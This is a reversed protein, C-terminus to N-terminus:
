PAPCAGGVHRFVRYHFRAEIGHFEAVQQFSGSDRIMGLGIPRRRENIRPYAYFLYLSRESDVAERCLAEIELPTSIPRIEPDYIAPMGGGLGYGARLPPASGSAPVAALFEVVDRMPAYPNRLLIRTQPLVLAQYAALLLVATLVTAARGAVRELPRLGLDVAIALWALVGPLLFILYRPYFQQGLAITLALSLPASALLGASVVRAARGRRLVALFGIAALAPLLGYAAAGVWASRESLSRLNPFGQAFEEERGQAPVGTALGSWLETVSATSVPRSYEWLPVMTLNPAIVQLLLGGAALNTVMFRAALRRRDRPPRRSALAGVLGALGLSGTLFITYPFSWLLFLQSIGYLGHARWAGSRLLQTLALCSTLTFLVVFSYARGDVGYRIHWPHIALLFAAVVAARPFGWSRVLLALVLV